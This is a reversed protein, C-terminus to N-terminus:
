ESVDNRRRAHRQREKERWEPDTRRKEKRLRSQNERRCTLCVQQSGKVIKTNEPTFEHGRKCHTLRDYDSKHESRSVIVLHRPNACLRNTCSHHLNEDSSLDRGVALSKAFRHVYVNRKNERDWLLGYGSSRYGKWEWCQDGGAISIRDFFREKESASM